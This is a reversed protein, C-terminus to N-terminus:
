GGSSRTTSRSEDGPNNGTVVRLSRVKSLLNYTYSLVLHYYILIASLHATALETRANGQNPTNITSSM